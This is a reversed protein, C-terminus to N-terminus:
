GAVLKHSRWSRSALAGLLHGGVIFLLLFVAIPVIDGEFGDEGPYSSTPFLVSYFLQHALLVGALAAVWSVLADRFRGSLLGSTAGVAVWLALGAVLSATGGSSPGQQRFTWYDVLMLVFPALGAM